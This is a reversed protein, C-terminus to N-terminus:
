TGRGGRRGLCSHAPRAAGQVRSLLQAGGDHRRCPGSLGDARPSACSQARLHSAGERLGDRGDPAGWGGPPTPTEVLALPEAAETPFHSPGWLVAGLARAGGAGRRGSRRGVAGPRAQRGWAAPTPSSRLAFFAEALAQEQARAPGFGVGSLGGGGSPGACPSARTGASLPWALGGAPGVARPMGRRCRRATWPRTPGGPAPLVGRPGRPSPAAPSPGPASPAAHSLGCAPTPPRRPPVGTRRLCAWQGFLGPTIVAGRSRSARPGPPLEPPWPSPCREDVMVSWTTLFTAPAVM